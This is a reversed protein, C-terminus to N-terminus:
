VKRIALNGYAGVARFERRASKLVRRLRTKVGRDDWMMEVLWEIRPERIDIMEGYVGELLFKEVEFL